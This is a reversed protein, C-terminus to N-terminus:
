SSEARHHYSRLRDQHLTPMGHRIRSVEGVSFRGVTRYQPDDTMASGSRWEVAKGTRSSLWIAARPRHGLAAGRVKRSPSTSYAAPARSKLNKMTLDPSIAMTSGVPYSGRVMTTWLFPSNVPSMECRVPARRDDGGDGLAIALGVLDRGVVQASDEVLARREAVDDQLREDGPPLQQALRRVERSQAHDARAVRPVREADAIEQGLVAHRNM